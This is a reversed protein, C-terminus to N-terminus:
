SPEPFSTWLGTENEFQYVVRAVAIHVNSGLEHERALVIIRDAAAKWDTGHELALEYAEHAAILGIEVATNIIASFSPPPHHKATM